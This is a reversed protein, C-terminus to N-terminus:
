RLRATRRPLTSGDLRMGFWRQLIADGVCTLLAFVTIGLLTSAVITAYLAPLDVSATKRQIWAGLGPQSTGVFFEGVIAGVVAVGSAIRIGSIMWPMASPLRLKWLTQWWGANHLHFLEHLQPDIQMLGTTTNTVIPFISIVAAVLTVSHFGRGFTLIILPAIAIIPVTQFLIAYPYCARRIVSSQAFAFATLTGIFTSIALGSVAALATRATAELLEVRLLRLADFVDKPHPVIFGPIDFVAIALHWVAIVSALVLLPLLGATMSNLVRSWTM